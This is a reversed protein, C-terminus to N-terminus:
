RGRLAGWPGVRNILDDNKAPRAPKEWPGKIKRQKSAPAPPVPGITASGSGFLAARVGAKDTTYTRELFDVVYTKKAEPWDRYTRYFAQKHCIFLQRFDLPCLEALLMNVLDRQKGAAGRLTYFYAPNESTIQPWEGGNEVWNLLGGLAQFEPPLDDLHRRAARRMELRDVGTLDEGARAATDVLIFDLREQLLARTDLGSAAVISEALENEQLFQAIANRDDLGIVKEIPLPGLAAPPSVSIAAPHPPARFIYVGGFHATYFDDQQFSSDNLGVPNRLIDGSTRALAIMEDILTDDWWADKGTEFREIKELLAKADDIHSRTTDAEIGIQRIQFLRAPTDLSFVSNVLEGAVADRTTLAFLQPENETIFAQMIDRTKSFKANLLPATKQKTSLLIFQRNCGNPNLYLPDNLEDGIEPAYGSIDVHFDGLMTKRGTLRELARNYREVLAASDVAFLNGYILGAKILRKMPHGRKGAPAQM